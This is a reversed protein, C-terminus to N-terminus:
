ILNGNYKLYMEKRLELFIEGNNREVLKGENSDFYAKKDRMLTKFNTPIYKEIAGVIMEKTFDGIIKNKDFDVHVNFREDGEDYQKDVMLEVLKIIEYKEPFKNKHYDVGQSQKFFRVYNLNQWVKPTIRGVNQYQLLIDLDAHRNSCFMGMVDNTPTDGVYLNIDECLLLGGRFNDAAYFLLKELESHPIRRGTEPYIPRIRRIEIKPHAAFLAIKNYHLPEYDTYEDQADIILVKRPKSDMGGVGRVYKEMTIKAQHSKGIGKKGASAGLKAERPM